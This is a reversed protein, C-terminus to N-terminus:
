ARRELILGQLSRGIRGHADYLTGEAVGTGHPELWTRADCLVWEGAPLRHVYVTLDPNVFMTELPSVVFSIGNPFDAAACVRQLPSPEEDPVVPLRLRFWCWGPAVAIKGVASRVEVGLPHFGGGQRWGGTLWVLGEPAPRPPPDDNVPVPVEGTRIRLATMRAVEQEASWLSAEVLQVKRGPRVVRSRVTLPVQGVPRLLEVTMRVVFMPQDAPFREVERALLMAPPGGHLQQDSWPSLAAETPTFTDGDRDFISAPSDPL